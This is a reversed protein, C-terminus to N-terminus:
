VELKRDVMEVPLGLIKSIDVAGYGVSHLERIKESVREVKREFYKVSWEIL